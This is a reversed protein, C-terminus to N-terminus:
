LRCAQGPKVRVQLMVTQLANKPSIHSELGRAAVRERDADRMVLGRQKDIEVELTAADDRTVVSASRIGSTQQTSWFWAM